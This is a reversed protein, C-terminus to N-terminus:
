KDADKTCAWVMCIGWGIFTWGFLLNAVCIACGNRKGSGIITPLFYIVGVIVLVILGVVPDQSM